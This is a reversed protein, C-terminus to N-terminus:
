SPVCKKRLTSWHERLAKRLNEPEATRCAIQAVVVLDLGKLGAQEHRFADRVIRKIRNRDVARGSVRRSVAIGLRANGFHNVLAHVAFLHDQNRKGGKIM